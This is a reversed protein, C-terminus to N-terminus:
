EGIMKWDFKLNYLDHGSYWKVHGDMFTVYSGGTLGHPHRNYGPKYDKPGCGEKCADGKFADEAHGSLTSSIGGMQESFLPVTEHNPIVEYNADPKTYGDRVLHQNFAYGNIGREDSQEVRPCRLPAITLWSKSDIEEQDPFLGDHGEAYQIMAIGMQRQNSM